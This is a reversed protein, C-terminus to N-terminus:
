RLLKIEKDSSITIREDLTFLDYGKKAIGKNRFHQSSIVVKVEGKGSNVIPSPTKLHLIVLCKIQENFSLLNFHTPFNVISLIPLACTQVGTM